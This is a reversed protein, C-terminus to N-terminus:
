TTPSTDCICEPFACYATSKCFVPKPMNDPDMATSILLARIKDRYEIVAGMAGSGPDGCLREADSAPNVSEHLAAADEVGLIYADAEALMREKFGTPGSGTAQGTTPTDSLARIADDKVENLFYNIRLALALHNKIDALCLKCGDPRHDFDLSAHVVCNTIRSGAHFPRNLIALVPAVTREREKAREALLAAEASDLAQLLTRIKQMEPRADFDWDTSDFWRRIDAIERVTGPTM